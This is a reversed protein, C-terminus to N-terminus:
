PLVTVTLSVTLRYRYPKCNPRRCPKRYSPLPLSFPLRPTVHEQEMTGALSGEDIFGGGNHKSWSEKEFKGEM